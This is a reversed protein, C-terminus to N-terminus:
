MSNNVATRIPPCIPLWIALLCRDCLAMLIRVPIRTSYIPMLVKVICQGMGSSCFCGNLGLHEILQDAM